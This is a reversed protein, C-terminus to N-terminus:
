TLMMVLGIATVVLSIVLPYKTPITVRGEYHAPTYFNGLSFEPVYKGEALVIEMAQINGLFTRGSHHGSSLILTALILVVGTVTIVIANKM